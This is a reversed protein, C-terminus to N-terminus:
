RLLSLLLMLSILQWVSEVPRAIVFLQAVSVNWLYKGVFALILISGLFYLASLFMATYNGEFWGSSGKHSVSPREYQMPAEERHASPRERRMSPRERHMPPEEYGMSNDEHGAYHPM